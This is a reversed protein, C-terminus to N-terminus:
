MNVYLIRYNFTCYETKWPCIPRELRGLNCAPGESPLLELLGSPRGRRIGDAISSPHKLFGRSWEGAAVRHLDNRKTEAGGVM